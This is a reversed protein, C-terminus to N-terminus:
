RSTRRRLLNGGPIAKIDYCWLRDGDRIYLRGDAIVPRGRRRAPVPKAILHTPPCSAATSATGRPLRRSSLWRATEGHLYLRTRMPSRPPPSARESWKVDGTKFDASVLLTGSTGFLYAGVLVAGGICGPCSRAATPRRPRGFGRMLWSASRREASADSRQLRLGDGVVPTLISMGVPAPPRTTGGSSGAPGPRWASCATM